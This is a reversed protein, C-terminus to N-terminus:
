YVKKWKETLLDLRWVRSLEADYVLVKHDLGWLNQPVKLSEPIKIRKEEKFEKNFVKLSSGEMLIFEEDDFLWGYLSGFRLSWPISQIIKAEKASCILVEDKESFAFRDGSKDWVVTAFYGSHITYAVRKELTRLNLIVLNVRHESKDRCCLALFDHRPSARVRFPVIVNEVLTQQTGTGLDIRVVKYNSPKEKIGAILSNQTEAWAILDNIHSNSQARSNLGTGDTNMLWLVSSNGRLSKSRMDGSVTMFAVKSGDPSLLCNGWFSLKHFPSQPNHAEVLAKKGTMDANMVWLDKVWTREKEISVFFAIKDGGISFEPEISDREEVVKEVEDSTSSYRLLDRRSYTWFYVDGSHEVAYTTEIWKKGSFLDGKAIWVTALAFSLVMFLVLYEAFIFIKKATQSFDTRKLTLISAAAFSLGIFIQFGRLEGDYLYTAWLFIHFQLLVFALAAGVLASILLIAFQKEYLISLSFSITFVLIPLAVYTSFSVLGGLESPVQFEKMVENLGPLIRKVFFFILIIAGLISFLSVYKFFWVKEKKIPRSFLYIWANDKFESYFGGSGILLGSIPLFLLLFMGMFYLALEKQASLNLVILALMFLIAISFLVINDRWEKFFIRKFM